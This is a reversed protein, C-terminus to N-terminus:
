GGRLRRQPVAQPQPTSRDLSDIVVSPLQADLQEVLRERLQRKITRSLDLQGHHDLALSGQRLMEISLSPAEAGLPCVDFALSSATASPMRTIM